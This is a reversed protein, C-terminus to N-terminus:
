SGPWSSDYTELIGCSLPSFTQASSNALLVSVTADTNKTPKKGTGYPTYCSMTALSITASVTIGLASVGSDEGPKLGALKKINHKGSRNHPDEELATLMKELM